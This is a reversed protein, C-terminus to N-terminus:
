KMGFITKIQAVREADTLEPADVAGQVAALRKEAAEFKERALKLQEDKTGQAREKLALEKTHLIRDQIATAMEIFKAATKASGTRLAAEAALSKYAAIAKEDELGVKEALADIEMTAVRAEYLRHESEQERMWSKWRYFGGHSINREVGMEKEAYEKVRFWPERKAVEWLQWLQEDSLDAYWSDSRPKELKM